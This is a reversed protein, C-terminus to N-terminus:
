SGRRDSWGEEVEEEEEVDTGKCFDREVLIVKIIDVSPGFPLGWWM